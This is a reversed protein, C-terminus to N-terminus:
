KGDDKGPVAKPAPVLAGANWDLQFGPYALAIVANIKDRQASLALQQLQVEAQLARLKSLHADVQAAHLESLTPAKAEAAAPTEAKPAPPPAAPAQAFLLGAVLLTPITTM